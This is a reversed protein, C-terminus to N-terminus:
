PDAELRARLAARARERDELSADLRFPYAEPDITSLTHGAMDCIRPDSYNQGDLTGASGTRAETDGLARLMLRHIARKTEASAQDYAAAKDGRRSLPRSEGRRFARVIRLRDLSARDAFTRELSEIAKPDNSWALFGILKERVIRPENKMASPPDDRNWEAIMAEVGEPRGREHLAIAAALRSSRHPGRAIEELLFPIDEERQSEGALATLESRTFWDAANRAGVVLAAAAAAPDTKRLRRAREPADRDGAEIGELLIQREGKRLVGAHWEAVNAKLAALRDAAATENGERFERGAIRELVRLACDHVTLVRHSFYFDRHFGVSRTLRDDELTEILQPVADYGIAVLQHAASAKSTMFINCEGPQSIQHGNQDRLQFLLEAIQERRPLEEFPPGNARTAAHERDERIMKALMEATARAQPIHPSGPFKELIRQFSALLEERSVETNGFTEVGRWMEMHALDEVLRQRFSVATRSPPENPAGKAARDYLRAALEAEGKRHCVWALVFLEGRFSLQEGHLPFRDGFRPATNTELFHDVLPELDVLEYDPRTPRGDVGKWEQFRVTSLAPTVVTLLEEDLLFGHGYVVERPKGPEQIWGWEVRALPADKLDPYGLTGFWAFTEDRERVDREAEAAAQRPIALLLSVLPLSVLVLSLSLRMRHMIANGLVAPQGIGARRSDITGPTFPRWRVGAASWARGDGGTKM